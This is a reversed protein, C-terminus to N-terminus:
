HTSIITISTPIAIAEMPQTQSYLHWNSQITATLHLEYKKDAIKKATYNWTVPNQGTVSIM